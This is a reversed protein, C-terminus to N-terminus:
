VVGDLHSCSDVANKVNREERDRYVQRTHVVTYIHEEQICFAEQM